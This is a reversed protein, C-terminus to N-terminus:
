CTHAPDWGAFGHHMGPNHQGNFGMTQVCMVVHDGFDSGAPAADASVAAPLVVVGVLVALVLVASRGVGRM